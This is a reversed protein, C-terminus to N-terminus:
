MRRPLDLILQCSPVYLSQLARGIKLGKLQEAMPDDGLSLEVKRPFFQGGHQILNLSGSACHTKGDILPYTNLEMTSLSARDRQPISKTKLEPMQLRFILQGGANKSPDARSFVEVSQGGKIQEFSLDALYKPVNYYDLGGFLAPESDVPLQLVYAHYARQLVSRALRLPSLRPQTGFHM